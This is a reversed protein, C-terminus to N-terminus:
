AAEHCLTGPISTLRLRNIFIALRKGSRCFVAEHLFALFVSLPGIAAGSVKEPVLYRFIFGRNAPNRQAASIPTSEAAGVARACCFVMLSHLASHCAFLASFWAFRIVSAAYMDWHRAPVELAVVGVGGAVAVDGALVGAVVGRVLETGVAALGVPALWNADSLWALSM